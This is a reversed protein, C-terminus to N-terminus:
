TWFHLIDAQQDISKQYKVKWTKTMMSFWSDYFDQWECHKSIVWFLRMQIMTGFFLTVKIKQLMQIGPGFNALFCFM